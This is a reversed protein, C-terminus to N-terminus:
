IMKRDTFLTLIASRIFIIDLLIFAFDITCFFKVNCLLGTSITSILRFFDLFIFFM